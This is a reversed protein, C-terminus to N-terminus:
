LQLGVHADESSQFGCPPHLRVRNYRMAEDCNTSILPIMGLRHAIFEDPLVTTNNEVEVLDIAILVNNCQLSIFVTLPEGVTPIDAM